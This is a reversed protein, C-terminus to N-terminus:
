SATATALAVTMMDRFSTQREDTSLHEGTLIHDSVTCIALAKVGHQIATGYLGAAEMELALFGNRQVVENTTPDPDYFSDSTFIRGVKVPIDATEAAEVAARLLGFDAAAGFDRGGMRNRNVLSDTGAASAIVLDRIKVDPQISGCSGVRILSTVGYEAILETAYIQLSPVGMGSGQVSVPTGNFTGTFGLMNRVDTVQRADTLFEEAIMKARLPDGPMLVVPAYDGSDASLHPTGM